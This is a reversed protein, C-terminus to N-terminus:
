FKYRIGWSSEVIPTNEFDFTPQLEIHLSFKDFKQFPTFQVGVPIIIGNYYNIVGGVGAYINYREKSIFNYCLVLEPTLDDFTTNSYLRLESWVKGSFNYSLGIKSLSSSYYSVGIQSFARNSMFSILGILVLTKITRTMYTRKQIKEKNTQNRYTKM